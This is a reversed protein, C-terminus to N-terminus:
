YMYLTVYNFTLQVSLDLVIGKEILMIFFNSCDIVEVGIWMANVPLSAVLFDAM